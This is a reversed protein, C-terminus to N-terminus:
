LGAAVAADIVDQPVSCTGAAEAVLGFLTDQDSGALAILETEPTGALLQEHACNAARPDAGQATLSDFM